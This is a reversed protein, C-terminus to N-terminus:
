TDKWMFVSGAILWIAFLPFIPLGLALAADSESVTGALGLVGFLQAALDGLEFRGAFTDEGGRVGSPPLQLVGEVAAWLLLEHRQLHLEARGAFAGFL